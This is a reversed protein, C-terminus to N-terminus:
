QSFVVVCCFLLVCAYTRIITFTVIVTHLIGYDVDVAAAAAGFADLLSPTYMKREGFASVDVDTDM